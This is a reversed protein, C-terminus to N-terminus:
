MMKELEDIQRYLRDEDLDLSKRAPSPAELMRRLLDTPYELAYEIRFTRSERPALAVDWRLLGDRDAKVEPLIKVDEVRIEPSESVPIRDRLAIQLADGALNEATVVYSVRLRTKKGHRVLASRKRDLTRALKVGDATGTFLTFDEGQAVFATETTGLFAGDLYLAVKGPLIPRDSANTLEVTRAANLSAEPAAVVRHRAALETVGLLVRVPRGDARVTVPKLGQFHATTGRSELSRFVEGMRAQTARQAAVMSGLEREKLIANKGEYEAVARQFTDETAGMARALSPGSGGVLLAELEPIKLTAGPRQTSLRISAGEWSEGTTQTVVGFSALSVSEAGPRARLETVPEWTAGPVLYTLELQAPSGTGSVTVLVTRQELPAKEQLEALTRQRAALEPALDRRKRELERRARANRRLSETVFDVAEAYSGVKVDRVAADKPLKEMSFVRIAEIQRAQADLVAREDDLAAIEDAVERVRAEARRVEDDGARALFTSRVEVDVIQGVQPPALQARVSGEDIWGPLGEIAFRRVAEGPAIPARRQVRARDAYVTVETIRTPLREGEEPPAPAAQAAQLLGPVLLGAALIHSKM